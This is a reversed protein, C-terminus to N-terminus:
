PAAPRCGGTVQPAYGTICGIAAGSVFDGKKGNEWEYCEAQADALRGATTMNMALSAAHACDDSTDFVFWNTDGLLQGMLTVILVYKM